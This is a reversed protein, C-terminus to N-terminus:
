NKDNIPYLRKLKIRADTTKFQWNVNKQEKNRHENYAAVERKLMDFDAIRRNLCQRSIISLEIEAINLWSGHEPTYHWEIRNAIRHAEAPDYREYLSAATHTNLNDCVLVLKEANPYHTDSLSKLQEAFDVSKRRETVDANRNGTLPEVWSFINATGNREYESDVRKPKGPSVPISGNPTGLLQKSKEDICIVPRNPDYPRQYVDLVDEM